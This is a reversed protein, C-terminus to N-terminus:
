FFLRSLKSMGFVPNEFFAARLDPQIMCLIVTLLFFGFLAIECFRVLSNAWSGPKDEEDDKAIVTAVVPLGLTSEADDSDEFGLGDFEPRYFLAVGFGTAGALMAFLFMQRRIPVSDVPQTAADSICSIVFNNSSLDGALTQLNRLEAGLRDANVTSNNRIQGLKSQVSDIDLSNLSALISGVQPNSEAMSANRIRVPQDVPEDRQTNLNQLRRNIKSISNRLQEFEWEDQASEIEVLKRKLDSIANQFEETSAQNEFRDTLSAPAQQYKLDEISRHIDSLGVNLSDVMRNTSEIDDHLRTANFNVTEVVRGFQQNVDAVSKLVADRSGIGEALQRTISRTLNKEVVGGNGVFATTVRFGGSQRKAIRFDLKDRVAQLDVNQIDQDAINSNQVSLELHSSLSADDIENSVLRHVMEEPREGQGTVDVSSLTEFDRYSASSIFCLACFTTIAITLFAFLRRRQYVKEYPKDGYGRNSKSADM